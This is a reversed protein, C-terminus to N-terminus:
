PWRWALWDVAAVSVLGRCVWSLAVRKIGRRIIRQTKHLFRNPQLRKKSVTGSKGAVCLVAKTKAPM